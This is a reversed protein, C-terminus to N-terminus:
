GQKQTQEVIEKYTGIKELSGSNIKIIFDCGSLTSLRHAIIIITLENQMQSLNQMVKAETVSDLASTAEDLVMVDANKYLARALGIRQRQGGSLKVGREGIKTQYGLDMLDIFQEAEAIKAANKVRNIDVDNLPLGFAINEAITSDSLYISQPVHAIKAMWMGSNANTLAVGDIFLRGVTPKLLGMLVDILTSKGAGTTGIVGVKAGKPIKLTVGNLVYSTNSQYGFSVNDFTICHEFNLRPLNNVNFYEVSPQNLLDLGERISASGGKISSLASFIQQALPLVKQAGLAFVGLLPIMNTIENGEYSFYFATLVLALIGITEVGYRPTTGIVHSSCQGKRLAKDAMAFQEYFYKQNGDILIDRIGGLSEQLIKITAVSSAAVIRSNSLLKKRSILIILTYILGFGFIIISGVLPNLFLFICLISILILSSSVIILVPAVGYHILADTKMIIGSIISSSSRSLHVEYTQQLTKEFMKCSWDAGLGFSFKANFYMLFIRILGALLTILCFGVTIIGLLESASQCGFFDVIWSFKPDRFIKEPDIAAALFPFIAGISIFEALSSFIMLVLVWCGFRRYKLDVHGLLELLNLYPTKKNSAM